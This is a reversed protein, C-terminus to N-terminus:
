ESLKAFIDTEKLKPFEKYLEDRETETIDLHIEIATEKLFNRIGCWVKMEQFSTPMHLTNEENLRKSLEKLFGVECYVVKRYRVAM